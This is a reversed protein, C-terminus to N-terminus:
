KTAEKPKPTLDHKIPYRQGTVYFKNCLINQLFVISM